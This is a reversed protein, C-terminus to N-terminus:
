SRVGNSAEGKADTGMGDLFENASDKIRDVGETAAVEIRSKLSVATDGLLESETETLPLALGVALGLAAAVAGVAVPNAEMYNSYTEKGTAALDSVKSATSSMAGEVLHYADAAADKVSDLSRSVRSDKDNQNSAVRGREAVNRRVAMKKGNRSRNMLILGTGAGILLLPLANGGASNTIESIKNMLKNVKEKTSDYLAEKTSEIASTVQESVEDKITATLAPISLREQLEDITEGMQDRTQSIEEKIARVDADDTEDVRTDLEQDTGEAM